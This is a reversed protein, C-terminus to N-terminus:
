KQPWSIAVKELQLGIFHTYAILSRGLSGGRPLIFHIGRRNFETESPESRRLAVTFKRADIKRGEVKTFHSGVRGRLGTTARDPSMKWGTEGLDVAVGERFTKCLEKPIEMQLFQEIKFPGFVRTAETGWRTEVQDKPGSEIQRMRGADTQTEESLRGGKRSGDGSEKPPIRPSVACRMAPLKVKGGRCREKTRIRFYTKGGSLCLMKENGSQIHKHHM